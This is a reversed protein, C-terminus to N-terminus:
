CTDHRHYCLHEEQEAEEMDQLVWDTDPKYGSKAMDVKLKEMEGFLLEKYPPAKDNAVLNYIHGNIVTTSIGPIKKIGREKMLQFIRNKDAYRKNMAYTNGLLVYVAPDHQDVSLIHNAVREARGVDRAVRCAGLLVKWLTIENSHGLKRIYDEARDLQDDRGLADVVCAFHELTPTIDYKQQMSEVISVADDAM